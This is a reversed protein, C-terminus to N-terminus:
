FASIELTVIFDLIAAKGQGARVFTCKSTSENCVLFHFLEVMSSYYM